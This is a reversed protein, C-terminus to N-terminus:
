YMWSPGKTKAQPAEGAPGGSSQGQSGGGAGRTVVVAEEVM